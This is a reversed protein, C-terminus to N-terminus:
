GQQLFTKKEVYHMLFIQKFKLSTEACAASLLFLLAGLEGRMLRHDDQLM